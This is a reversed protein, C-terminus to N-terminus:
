YISVAIFIYIFLYRIQMYTMAYYMPIHHCISPYGVRTSCTMADYIKFIAYCAQLIAYFLM